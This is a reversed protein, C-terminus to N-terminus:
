IISIEQYDGLEITNIISCVQDVQTRIKPWSTSLLVVIAIQRESLNQQYRLNQDTTVLIQYGKNEAAKLLDGNSLNSWAEEYATTVSHNILYKRLPVPTGQDFLIKM